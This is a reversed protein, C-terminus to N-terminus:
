LQFVSRPAIRRRFRTTEGQDAQVGPRGQQGPCLVAVALEGTGSGHCALIDVLSLADNQDAIEIDRRKRRDEVPQDRLASQPVRADQRGLPGAGRRPNRGPPEGSDAQRDIVHQDAGADSDDTAADPRVDAAVM